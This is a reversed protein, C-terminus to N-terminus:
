AEKLEGGSAAAVAEDLAALLVAKHEIRIRAYWVLVLVLLPGFVWTKISWSPILLGEIHNQWAWVREAVWVAFVVVCGLGETVTFTDALRAHVVVGYSTTAVQGHLRARPLFKLREFIVPSVFDFSSMETSLKLTGLDLSNLTRMFEEQTTSVHFKIDFCTM